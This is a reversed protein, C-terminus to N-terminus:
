KWCFTLLPIRITTMEPEIMVCPVGDITATDNEHFTLQVNAEGFQIQKWSSTAGKNPPWPEGYHSVHAWRVEGTRATSKTTEFTVKGDFFNSGTHLSGAYTSVIETDGM